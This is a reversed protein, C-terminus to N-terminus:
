KEEHRVATSRLLITTTSSSRHDDCYRCPLIIVPMRPPLKRRPWLRRSGDEREIALGNKWLCLQQHRAKNQRGFSPHLVIPNPRTRGSFNSQMCPTPSPGRAICHICYSVPDSAVKPSRLSGWDFIWIMGVREEHPTVFPRATPEYRRM